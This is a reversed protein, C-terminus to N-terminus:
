VLVRVYTCVCARVEGGLGAAGGAQRAGPVGADEGEHGDRVQAEAGPHDARVQCLPGACRTGWAPTHLGAGQVCM